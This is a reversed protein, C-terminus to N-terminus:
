SGGLLDERFFFAFIRPAAFAVKKPHHQFLKIHFFMNVGSPHTSYQAACISPGDKPNQTTQLFVARKGEVM